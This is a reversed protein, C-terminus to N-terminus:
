GYRPDSGRLRREPSSPDPRPSAAAACGAGAPPAGAADGDGSGGGLRELRAVLEEVQYRLPARELIAREVRRVANAVSPHERGFARAIAVLPADTYQRCLYMGLQRPVLVDRRRSRSALAAPTTGFFAAVGRVVAGVELRVRCADTPAVKHLARRTLELDIPRKLLSASAVLQILVGELDRVSGRLSEVLLDLCADPVRVGGHAAKRRLIERRVMADPPEIEAVLGAGMRSRLRLDLGDMARPLRDGTLVVRAGADILHSLTHFLELQTASKARLFQVDELVLLDCEQRYRRKFRDMDRDRISATFLNTFAEASEYVCRTLGRRAAEGVVARALHTKGLGPESVLFLPNLPRQADRAVAVAAERALANCPGVVFSAFTHPLDAQWPGRGAPRAPREPAPEAAASSARGPECAAREGAGSSAGAASAPGVALRAAARGELLHLEIAVPRGAEAEACREIRALLRAEIRERHFASPCGLRLGEAGAEAVLPRVWAELAHRPLEAGLRRLVGEWLEQPLHM